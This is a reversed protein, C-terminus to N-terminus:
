ALVEMLTLTSMVNAAPGYYNHKFM